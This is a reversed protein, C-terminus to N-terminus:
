KNRKWKEKGFIIKKCNKNELNKKFKEDAKMFYKKKLYLYTKKFLYNIVNVNGNMAAYHLASNGLFDQTNAQLGIDLFLAVQELDGRKSALHLASMGAYSQAVGHDNKLLLFLM